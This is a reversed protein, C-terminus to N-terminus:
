SAPLEFAYVYAIAGRKLGTMMAFLEDDLLTALESRGAELAAADADGVETVNSHGAADVLPGTARLLVTVPSPVLPKASPSAIGSTLLVGLEHGTPLAAGTKLVIEDGDVAAEFAPLGHATDTPSAKLATLDLLFVTGKAGLKWASVTKADLEGKFAVRLESASVVRPVRGSSPDLEAVPSSHIPFSWLVAVDGLAVGAYAVAGWADLKALRQREGELTFLLAPVTAAPLIASATEVYACDKAVAAISAAGCTLSTPQKLLFTAPAAVVRGGGATTVGGEFGRVAVVYTSGVEWGATPTVALQNAAGDFSVALDTVATGKTRDLVVVRGPLSEPALAESAPATAPGLTPFGDLAELYHDFECQAVPMAGPSACDAPVVVGARSLDITGTAPDIALDIPQPVRPPSTTSDLQMTAPLADAPPAGDVADGGCAALGLLATLLWGMTTTARNM